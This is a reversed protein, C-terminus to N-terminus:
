TARTAPARTTPACRRGSTATRRPSIRCWARARRPVKSATKSRPCTLKTIRLVPFFLQLRCRVMQLISARSNSPDYAKAEANYSQMLGCNEVGNNTCPVRVNGTSEKIVMALIVRADVKAAQAVQVIADHMAGIEEASDGIPQLSNTVQFNWLASFSAWKDPSPFNTAPGSYCTYTAPNGLPAGADLSSSYFSLGLASTVAALGDGGYLPAGLAVSALTCLSVIFHM